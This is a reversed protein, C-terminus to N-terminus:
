PNRVREIAERVQRQQYPKADAGDGGSLTVETEVHEPHQWVTHSGKGRDKLRRFGADRLEAKLQRIKPPM